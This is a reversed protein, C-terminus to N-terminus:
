WPLLLSKDDSTHIIFLDRPQNLAERECVNCGGMESEVVKERVLFVVVDEDHRAVGVNTVTADVLSAVLSVDRLSLALGLLGIGIVLALLVGVVVEVRTLNSLVCLYFPDISVSEWLILSGNGVSESGLLLLGLRTVISLSGL